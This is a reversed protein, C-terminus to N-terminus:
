TPYPTRYVKAEFRAQAIEGFIEGYCRDCIRGEEHAEHLEREFSLQVGELIDQLCMQAMPDDRLSDMHEEHEAIIKSAECNCKMM